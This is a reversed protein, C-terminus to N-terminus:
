FFIVFRFILRQIFLSLLFFTNGLATSHQTQEAQYFYYLFILGRIGFTVGRSCSIDLGFLFPAFPNIFSVGLIPYPYTAKLASFHPPPFRPTPSPIPLSDIDVAFLCATFFHYPSPLRIVYQTRPLLSFLGLWDFGVNSPTPHVGFRISTRADPLLSFVVGFVGAWGALWGIHNKAESYHRSVFISWIVIFALRQCSM